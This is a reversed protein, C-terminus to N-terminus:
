FHFNQFKSFNSEKVQFKKLIISQLFTHSHIKGLNIFKHGINILARIHGNKKYFEVKQPQM